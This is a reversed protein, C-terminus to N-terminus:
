KTMPTINLEANMGVAPGGIVAIKEGPFMPLFEAAGNVVKMSTTTTATPNSGIAIYVNDGAGTLCIRVITVADIAIAASQQSTVDVAINESGAEIAPRLFTPESKYSM